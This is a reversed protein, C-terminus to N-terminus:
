KSDSLLICKEVVNSAFKHTSYTQMELKVFSYVDDSAEKYLKILKKSGNGASTMKNPQDM